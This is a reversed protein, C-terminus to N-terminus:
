MGLMGEMGPPLPMDGTLEKMMEAAADAAKRQAASVAAKVLDEIMEKDGSAALKRDIHLEVLALKGSVTASVSGGGAEATHTSSAIKEQIEPMRRKVEAAMKMMKALDGFMM